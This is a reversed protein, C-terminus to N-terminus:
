YPQAPTSSSPMARPETTLPPRAHGPVLPDNALYVIRSEPAIEQAIQHTNDATPLGTGIHVFQRIGADGALYRVARAMFRRQLRAITAIDPFMRLIMDGTERDAAFNDKGGLLYNWVRASHATSTDLQPPPTGEGESQFPSSGAGRSGAGRGVGRAERGTPWRPGNRRGGPARGYPMPGTGHAARRKAPFSGM